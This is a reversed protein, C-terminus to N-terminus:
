ELVVASGTIRPSCAGACSNGAGTAAADGIAPAPIVLELEIVVGATVEATIIVAAAGLTTDTEAAELELGALKGAAELRTENGAFKAPVALLASNAARLIVRAATAAGVAVILLPRTRNRLGTAVEVIVVTRAGPAGDM